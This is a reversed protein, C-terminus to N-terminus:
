KYLKLSAKGYSWSALEKLEFRDSLVLYKVGPFPYTSFWNRLRTWRDPTWSSWLWCMETGRTIINRPRFRSRPHGQSRSFEYAVQHLVYISFLNIITPKPGVVFSYSPRRRKPGHETAQQFHCGPSRLDCVGLYSIWLGVALFSRIRLPRGEGLIIWIWCLIDQGKISRSRESLFNREQEAGSELNQTLDRSSYLQESAEALLDM